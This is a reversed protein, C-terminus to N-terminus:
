QIVLASLPCESDTVTVAFAWPWFATDAVDLATFTVFYAAEGQRLPVSGTETLKRYLKSGEPLTELTALRHIPQRAQGRRGGRARM